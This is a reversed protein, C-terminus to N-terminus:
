LTKDNAFFISKDESTSYHLTAYVTSLANNSSMFCLSCISKSVATVPVAPFYPMTKSKPSSLYGLYVKNLELERGLVIMCVNM